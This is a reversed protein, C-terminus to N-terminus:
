KLLTTRERLWVLDRNGPSPDLHQHYDRSFATITRQDRWRHHEVHSDAYSIVGGFNHSSSPFNFFSDQSMKVGFYPWCLSDPHVDQFLFLGAPMRPGIESHKRFIRYRSDLRTDWAGTWGVYANLAYSRPRAFVQGYINTTERDTPCLYVKRNQLYNAFLAYKPDLLWAYNTNYQARYLAGQIWLKYRTDPPDVEGNAVLWDNNDGAYMAWVAALQKQNSICQVRKAAAKARALAPLLLAALIAIIAIVVLLEILTFALGSRRSACM